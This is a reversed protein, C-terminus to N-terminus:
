DYIFSNEKVNWRFRREPLTEVWNIINRINTTKGADQVANAGTEVMM